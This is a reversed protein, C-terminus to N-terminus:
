NPPFIGECNLPALPKLARRLERENGRLEGRSKVLLVHLEHSTIKKSTFLRGYLGTREFAKSQKVSRRIQDAQVVGLKHVASVVPAWVYTCAWIQEARGQEQEGKVESPTPGSINAAIILAVALFVIAGAVALLQNRRLRDTM